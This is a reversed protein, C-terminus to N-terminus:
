SFASFSKRVLFTGLGIIPMRNGDLLQVTLANDKNCYGLVTCLCFRFFLLM